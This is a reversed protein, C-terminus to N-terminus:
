QLFLDEFAICRSSASTAFPSDPYDPSNKGLIMQPGPNDSTARSLVGKGFNFMNGTIGLIQDSMIRYLTHKAFQASRRSIKAPEMSIGFSVDRPSHKQRIIVKQM